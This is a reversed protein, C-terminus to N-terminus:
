GHLVKAANARSTPGSVVRAIALLLVGKGFKRVVESAGHGRAQAFERAGLTGRGGDSFYVVCGNRTLTAMPESMAHRPRTAHTGNSASSHTCAAPLKRKVADKIGVPCPMQSHVAALDVGSGYFSRKRAEGSVAKDGEFNGSLMTEASAWPFSISM